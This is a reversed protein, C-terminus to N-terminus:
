SDHITSDDVFHMNVQLEKTVYMPITCTLWMAFTSENEQFVETGVEM